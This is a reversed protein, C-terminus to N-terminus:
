VALTNILPADKQMGEILQNDIIKTNSMTGNKLANTVVFPCDMVVVIPAHIWKTLTTADINEWINAVLHSGFQVLATM